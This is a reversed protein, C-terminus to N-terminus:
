GLTFPGAIFTDGYNGAGTGGNKVSIDIYFPNVPTVGDLTIQATGTGQSNTTLTAIESQPGFTWCRIDLVYTTNPQADHVSLNVMFRHQVQNYHVNVVGSDTGPFATAPTGNSCESVNPGIHVLRATGNYDNPLTRPSPRNTAALSMPVVIASTAALAALVVFLRKM